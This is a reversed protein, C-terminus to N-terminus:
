SEKDIEEMIKTQNKMERLIKLLVEEIQYLQKHLVDLERWMGQRFIKENEIRAGENM